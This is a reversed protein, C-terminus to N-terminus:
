VKNYIRCSRTFKKHFVSDPFMNMYVQSIYGGLSQGILITKQINELSFIDHLYQAMDYMTFKLQFPRSLGHAPADWTFCNYKDKLGEVQKEFLQHDATLGPLMILWPNNQRESSAWYHITGYTTEYTKEIM